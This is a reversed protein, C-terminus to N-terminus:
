DKCQIYDTGAESVKPELDLLGQSAPPISLLSTPADAVSFGWVLLRDFSTGGRRKGAQKGKSKRVVLM